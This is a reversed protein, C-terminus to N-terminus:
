PFTVAPAAASAREFWAGENRLCAVHVDWRRRDLRRILEIMQGETGGPGFSSMVFGIPVPASIVGSNSCPAYRTFAAITRSVNMASPLRADSISRATAM